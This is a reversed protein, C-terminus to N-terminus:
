RSYPLYMTVAVTHHVLRHLAPVCDVTQFQGRTSVVNTSQTCDCIIHFDYESSNEVVVILGAWGRALVYCSVGHRDRTQLVLVLIQVIIGM